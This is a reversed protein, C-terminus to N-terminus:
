GEMKFKSQSEWADKIRTVGANSHTVLGEGKKRAPDEISQSLMPSYRKMELIADEDFEVPKALLKIVEEILNTPFIWVWRKEDRHYYHHISIAKLPEHETTLYPLKIAFLTTAKM